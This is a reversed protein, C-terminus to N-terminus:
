LDFIARRLYIININKALIQFRICVVQFVLNRLLIRNKNRTNMTKYTIHTLVCCCNFYYNCM